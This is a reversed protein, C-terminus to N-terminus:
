QEYRNAVRSIIFSGATSLSNINIPCSGCEELKNPFLYKGTTTNPTFFFFFFLFVACRSPILNITVRSTQQDSETTLYRLDDNDIRYSSIIIIRTRERSDNSKTLIFSPRFYIPPLHLNNTLVFRSSLLKMKSKMRSKSYCNLPLIM